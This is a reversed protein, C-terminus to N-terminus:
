EEANKDASIDRSEAISSSSSSFGFEIERRRVVKETGKGKEKTKEKKKKKITKASVIVAEPVPHSDQEVIKAALVTQDFNRERKQIKAIQALQQEKMIKLQAVRQKLNKSRSLMLLM